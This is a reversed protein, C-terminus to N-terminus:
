NPFFIIANQEDWVEQKLQRHHLGAGLMELGEPFQAIWVKRSFYLKGLSKPPQSRDQHTCSSISCTQHFCQLFFPSLPDTPLKYLWFIFDHPHVQRQRFPPSELQFEPAWSFGAGLIEKGPDCSLCSDCATGMGVKSPHLAADCNATCEAPFLRQLVFLRQQFRSGNGFALM